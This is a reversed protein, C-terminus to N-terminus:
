PFPYLLLSIFFDQGLAPNKKLFVSYGGLIMEQESCQHKLNPYYKHNTIQHKTNQSKLSAIIQLCDLRGKIYNQIVIVPM